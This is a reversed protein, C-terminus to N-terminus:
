QLQGQIKNLFASASFEGQYHHDVTEKEKVFNWDIDEPKEFVSIYDRKVDSPMGDIKPNNTLLKKNFVVAEQARVSWTDYPQIRLELLCRSRKVIDQVLEYPLYADIYHINDCRHKKDGGKVYFAVNLNQEKCLDAIQELLALRGKDNGIFCLDYEEKVKEVPVNPYVNPWFEIHYEKAIGRDFVGILDPLGQLRQLEDAGVNKADTYFLVHKAGPVTQKFYDLMGKKIEIMFHSYWIFCIPNDNEFQIQDLVKQFWREKNPLSIIRNIKKSLHLKYLIMELPSFFESIDQYFRVDERVIVESYM